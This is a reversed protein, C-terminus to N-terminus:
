HPTTETQSHTDKVSSREAGTGWDVKRVGKISTVSEGQKAGHNHGHGRLERSGKRGWGCGAHRATIWGVQKQANRLSRQLTSPPHAGFLCSWAARPPLLNVTGCSLQSTSLLTLQSSFSAFNVSSGFPLVGVTSLQLALTLM